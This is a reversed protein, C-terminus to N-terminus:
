YNELNNSFVLHLNWDEYEKQTEPLLYYKRNSNKDIVQILQNEPLNMVKLEEKLNVDVEFIFEVSAM